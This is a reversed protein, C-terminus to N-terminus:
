LESCLCDLRAEIAVRSYQAAVRFRCVLDSSTIVYVPHNERPVNLGGQYGVVQVCVKCEARVCWCCETHTAIQSHFPKLFTAPM